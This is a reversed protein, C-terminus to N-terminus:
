ENRLIPNQTQITEIVLFECEYIWGKTDSDIKGNKEIIQVGKEELQALFEYLKEDMLTRVETLNYELPIKEYEKYIIQNFVKPLHLKNFISKHPNPTFIDYNKFKIKPSLTWNLDKWTFSMGKVEEGTYKKKYYGFPLRFIKTMKHKIGIDADAEVYLYDKITGDENYIPVKGEVLVQNLTVLDGIKVKPVGSRVIIYEIEGETCALLDFSATQSLNAQGDPNSEWSNYDKDMYENEKMDITLTIGKVRINVWTVIDFKKRLADELAEVQIEKRKVGTEISHEALFNLIEASKISENGSIQIRWVLASSYICLFITVMLGILFIKKKWIKSVFFPLGVRELLVVKTKTKKVIPRILRFGKLSVFMKYGDDIEEINWLLINRNACLNIFRKPSVGTVKIKVYGFVLNILEIM